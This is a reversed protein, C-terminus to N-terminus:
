WGAPLPCFGNSRALSATRRSTSAIRASDGSSVTVNSFVDEPIFAAEDVAAFKLRPGRNLGATTYFNITSGNVMEFRPPFQCYARRVLSMFAASKRMIRMVHHAFDAKYTFYAAYCGPFEQSAKTLGLAILTSKGWARGCVAIKCRAPDMLIDQQAPTARLRVTVTSM